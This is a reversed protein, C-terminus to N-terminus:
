SGFLCHFLWDLVVTKVIYDERLSFFCKQFNLWIRRPCLKKIRLNLRFQSKGAFRARSSFPRQRHLSQKCKIKQEKKQQGLIGESLIHGNVSACKLCFGVFDRQFFYACKLSNQTRWASNYFLFIRDSRWHWREFQLDNLHDRGVHSIHM